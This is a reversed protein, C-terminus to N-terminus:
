SLSGPRALWGGAPSGGVLGLGGVSWGVSVGVRGAGPGVQGIRDVWRGLRLRHRASQDWWGVASRCASRCASVGLGQGSGVSGILGGVWGYGTVHVEIGDVWGGM